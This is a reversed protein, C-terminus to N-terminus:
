KAPTLRLLRGGKGDEIVWLAGDKTQDIDRLRTPFPYRAEEKAKVGDISVRVIAQTKLGAILVQGNWEPFLKGSYFIFDGPAIVPNWYIAPEQFEPRTPHRPIPKGDYGDGYSVIPWGYNKGREILNLEDGGSPGHELGWLRGQADFKQGLINRNGTTWLERSIGGRDAWPNGEAPTGDLNLRLFSGMNDDLNQAPDGKAREGSTLFLYKGDPSFNIRHSFHAYGSVKPAQHWIPTLGEITCADGKCALTGRGLVAGRVDGEGAEVWTLYIQKNTAYGPAFAIDGLGGQGGYVVTPLGTVTGIRGNKPQYFKLTGARETIFVNGTGPEQAIAWPEQFAGHFTIAFPNGAPTEVPAGSSAVGTPGAGAECGALLLLPLALASAPIRM